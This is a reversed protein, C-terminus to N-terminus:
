AADTLFKSTMVACCQIPSARHLREPLSPSTLIVLILFLIFFLLSLFPHQRFLKLTFTFKFTDRHHHHTWTKYSPITVNWTALCSGVAFTAMYRKIGHGRKFTHGTISGLCFIHLIISCLNHSVDNFIWSSLRSTGTLTLDGAWCTTPENLLPFEVCKQM